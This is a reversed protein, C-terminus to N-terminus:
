VYYLERLIPRGSRRSRALDGRFAEGDFPRFGRFPKLNRLAPYPRPFLVLGGQVEPDETEGYDVLEQISADTTCYLGGTVAYGCGRKVLLSLDSQSVEIRKGTEEEMRERTEEDLRVGRVTELYFYGFIVPSKLGKERSVLYIRDGFNMGKLTQPKVRRNVGWKRAESVFEPISYFEAGVWHLHEM